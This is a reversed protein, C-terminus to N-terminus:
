VKDWRTIGNLIRSKIEKQFESTPHMEDYLEGWDNCSRIKEIYMEPMIRGTVSKSFNIIEDHANETVAEKIKGLACHKSIVQLLIDTNCQIEHACCEIAMEWSIGYKELQQITDRNSEPDEIIYMIADFLGIASVVVHNEIQILHGGIRFEATEPLRTMSQAM